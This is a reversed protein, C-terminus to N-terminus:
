ALKRVQRGLSTLDLGARTNAEEDDRHLVYGILSFAPMPSAKLQSKM